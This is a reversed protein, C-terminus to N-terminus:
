FIHHSFPRTAFPPSCIDQLCRFYPLTSCFAITSVTIRFLSLIRAKPFVIGVASPASYLISILVFPFSSSATYSFRQSTGDVLRLCFRRLFTLRCSWGVSLFCFVTVVWAVRSITCLLHDLDNFGYQALSGIRPVQSLFTWTDRITDDAAAQMIAYLHFVGPYTHAFSVALHQQPGRAPLLQSM